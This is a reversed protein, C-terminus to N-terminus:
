RIPVAKMCAADAAHDVRAWGLGMVAIHFNDAIMEPTTLHLLPMHKCTSHDIAQDVMVKAYAASWLMTVQQATFFTCYM